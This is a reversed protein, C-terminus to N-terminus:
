LWNTSWIKLNATAKTNSTGMQKQKKASKGSTQSFKRQRPLIFYKQKFYKQLHRDRLHMKEVFVRELSRLAVIESVQQRHGILFPSSEVRPRRRRRRRRRRWRRLSTGIRRGSWISSPPSLPTLPATVESWCSMQVWQWRDRLPQTISYWSWALHGIGNLLDKKVVWISGLIRSVCYFYLVRVRAIHFQDTAPFHGIPWSSWSPHSGAVFQKTVM